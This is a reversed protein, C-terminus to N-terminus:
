KEYKIILICLYKSFNYINDKQLYLNTSKEM